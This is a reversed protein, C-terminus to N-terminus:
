PAARTEVPSISLPTTAAAAAEAAKVVSPIVQAGGSDILAIAAQSRQIVGQPAYLATSLALFDARAEKTKGANLKAMALAERALARYPRDEEIMPKLRAEIDAYPADDMLAFASKLRASDAVMLGAANKPAVKAAEDFLAVAEKVKNDELQIAGQVMLALARYGAPGDKAVLGFKADAGKIDGNSILEVAEDYVRAAEAQAKENHAKVGYWVAFVVLGVVILGAIWPLLKLGLQKYKETRLEDEVEEFVDVVFPESFRLAL